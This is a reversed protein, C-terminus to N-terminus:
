AASAPPPEAGKGGAPPSAPAAEVAAAPPEASKEPKLLGLARAEDKNNPNQVFELFAEPKNQFRDRVHAPMAFFMSKAQAVQNQMTVYDIATVDAYQPQYRSTFELVGTKKFRAMINNIDCEAKFNQKTRGPGSFTLQLRDKKSYASHFAM